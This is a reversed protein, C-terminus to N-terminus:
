NVIITETTLTDLLRLGAKSAPVSFYHLASNPEKSELM